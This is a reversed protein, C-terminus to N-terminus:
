DGQNVLPYRLLDPSYGIQERRRQYTLITACKGYEELWQLDKETPGQQPQDGSAVAPIDLLFWDFYVLM